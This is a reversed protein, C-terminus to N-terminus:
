EAPRLRSALGLLMGNLAWFVAANHRHLFDDTLSKVVFGALIALGAVGYPALARARLMGAYERGILALLLTFISAGVLGLQLAQDLFLNHGHRIEPHQADPTHPVFVPALIERGFGHGFWPAKRIEEVATAWIRPRLDRELHTTVPLAPDFLRDNREVIAGAFALALAVGALAVVGRVIRDRQPSVTPLHRWLALVVVLQAAFAGWVIRNGSDWAAVILLAIALALAGAHRNWGWPRPWALALLVPALLVLHTSMPGGGGDMPHRSIPFPLIAQVHQLAFVVLTGTALATAWLRWRGADSAALFFVAFALTGYLAQARLEALSYSPQVSWAVSAIALAIWALYTLAVARPATRWRTAGETRWSLALCLTAALLATARLGASAAAPAVVLFATTTWVLARQAAAAPAPKEGAQSTVTM